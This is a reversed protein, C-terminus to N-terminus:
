VRICSGQLDWSSGNPNYKWLCTTVIGVLLDGSKIAESYPM